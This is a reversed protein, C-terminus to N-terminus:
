GGPGSVRYPARPGGPARPVVRQQCFRTAGDLSRTRDCRAAGAAIAGAVLEPWHPPLRGDGHLLLLWPAETAAVGQALQRGRGAAAPQLRAGALRALRQSGDVSGGDVVLGEKMLSVGLYRNQYKCIVDIADSLQVWASADDYGTAKGSATLPVKRGDFEAWTLWTECKHLAEPIREPSTRAENM